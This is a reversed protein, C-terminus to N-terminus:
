CSACLEAGRALRRDAPRALWDLQRPWAAFFALVAFLVLVAWHLAVDHYADRSTPRSPSSRATARRKPRPSRRASRPM